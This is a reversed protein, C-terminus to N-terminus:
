FPEVVLGTFKYGVGEIYEFLLKYNADDAWKIEYCDCELSSRNPTGNLIPKKITKSFLIQYNRLFEDYSKFVYFYGHGELGPSSLPSGSRFGLKLNGISWIFKYHLTLAFLKGKNDSRVASQFESWFDNLNNTTLPENYFDWDEYRMARSVNLVPSVEALREPPMEVAQHYLARGGWDCAVGIAFAIAIAVFRVTVQKM